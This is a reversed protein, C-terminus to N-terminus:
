GERWIRGLIGLLRRMGFLESPAVVLITENLVREIQSDDTGDLTNPLGISQSKRGPLPIQADFDESQEDQSM